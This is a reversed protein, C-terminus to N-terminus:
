QSPKSLITHDKLFIEATNLCLLTVAILKSGLRTLITIDQLFIFGCGNELVVVDGDEYLLGHLIQSEGVVGDGLWPPLDPVNDLYSTM